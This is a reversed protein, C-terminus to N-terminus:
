EFLKTRTSLVVKIQETGDGDAKIRGESRYFFLKSGSISNGGKAVNSNRGSLALEDSAAIYEMVEATATANGDGFQIRVNGQANLKDISGKDFITDKQYKSNERYYIQLSDATLVTNGQIVRVNGSFKTRNTELDVVLQDAKIRIKKDEEASEAISENQCKGTGASCFVFALAATFALM